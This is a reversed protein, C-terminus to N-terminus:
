KGSPGTDCATQDTEEVNLVVEFIAKEADVNEILGVPEDVLHEIYAHAEGKRCNNVLLKIDSDDQVWILGNEM